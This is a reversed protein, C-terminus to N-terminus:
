KCIPSCLIGAREKSPSWAFFTRTHHSCNELMGHPFAIEEHCRETAIDLSFVNEPILLRLEEMAYDFNVKTSSQQSSPNPSPPLVKACM